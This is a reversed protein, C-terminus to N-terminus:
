LINMLVSTLGEGEFFLEECVYISLKLEEKEFIKESFYNVSITIQQERATQNDKIGKKHDSQNPKPSTSRSFFV